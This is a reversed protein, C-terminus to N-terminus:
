SAKSNFNIFVITRISDTFVISLKAIMNIKSCSPPSKEALTAGNPRSHMGTRSDYMWLERPGGGEREVLM